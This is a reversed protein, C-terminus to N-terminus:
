AISRRVSSTRSGQDARAALALWWEALALLLMKEPQSSSSKAINLYSAAYRQCSVETTMRETVTGLMPMHELGM